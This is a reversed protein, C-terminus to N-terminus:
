MKAAVRQQYTLGLCRARQNVPVTLPINPQLVAVLCIEHKNKEARVRGALLSHVRGM